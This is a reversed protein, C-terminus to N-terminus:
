ELELWGELLQVIQWATTCGLLEKYEGGTNATKSQHQNSFFYRWILQALRNADSEAADMGDVAKGTVFRRNGIRRDVCYDCMSGTCNHLKSVLGLDALMTQGTENNIVVNSPNVDQHVLGLGHLIQLGRAAPLMMAAIDAKQDPLPLDSLGWYKFSTFKRLPMLVGIVAPDSARYGWWSPVWLDQRLSTAKVVAWNPLIGDPPELDRRYYSYQVLMGTFEGGLFSFGKLLYSGDQVCSVSDKKQHFFISEQCLDTKLACQCFSGDKLEILARFVAGGQGQGLKTLYNRNTIATSPVKLVENHLSWCQEKSSSNNNNKYAKKNPFSEALQEFQCHPAQSMREAYDEQLLPDQLPPTGMTIFNVLLFVLLSAFFLAYERKSSSSSACQSLRM